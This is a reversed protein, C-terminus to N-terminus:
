APPCSNNKLTKRKSNQRKKGKGVNNCKPSSSSSAAKWGLTVRLRVKCYYCKLSDQRLATTRLRPTVVRSPNNLSGKVPTM